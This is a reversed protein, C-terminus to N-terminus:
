PRLIKKQLDNNQNTLINIRKKLALNERSIDRVLTNSASAPRSGVISDAGALLLSSYKITIASGTQSTRSGAWGGALTTSPVPVVSLQVNGADSSANTINFGVTVEAPVLGSNKGGTGQRDAAQLADGVAILAEDLKLPTGSYKPNTTCSVSIMGLILTILPSTRNKM